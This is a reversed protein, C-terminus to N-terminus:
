DELFHFTQIISEFLVVDRMQLPKISFDYFLVSDREVAYLTFVYYLNEQRFTYRMYRQPTSGGIAGLYGTAKVAELGSVDLIEINDVLPCDGRCNSPNGGISFYIHDGIFGYGESYDPAPVEYRPPHNISFGYKDNEYTRWEISTPSSPFRISETMDEFVGFRQSITKTFGLTEALNISETDFLTSLNVNLMTNEDYMEANLYFIPISREKEPMKGWVFMIGKANGEVIHKKWLISYGSNNEDLVYDKLRTAVDKNQSLRYSELTIVYNYADNEALQKNDINPLSFKIDNNTTVEATWDSPYDISIGSSHTTSQWNRATPPQPIPTITPIVTFTPLPLLPMITFTPSLTPVPLPSSKVPSVSINTSLSVPQGKVMPESIKGNCSVCLALMLFLYEFWIIRGMKTTIEILKAAWRGCDPSAPNFASVGGVLVLWKFAGVKISALILREGANHNNYPTQSKLATHNNWFQFRM